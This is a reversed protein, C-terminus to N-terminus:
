PNYEFAGLDVGAGQPRAVQDFDLSPALLLTGIDIAPSTGLLHLNGTSISAFRPDKCLTHTDVLNKQQYRLLTCNASLWRVPYGSPRYFLNYDSWFGTEGGLDVRLNTSDSSLQYIINNGLTINASAPSLWVAPLKAHYITNNAITIYRSTPDEVPTSITANNGYINIGPGQVRAILNNVVRIHQSERLELAGSWGLGGLDHIYNGEILINNAGAMTKIGGGGKWSHIGTFDNRRFTQNSSGFSDIGYDGYSSFSCNEILDDHNGTTNFKIADNRFHRLVLKRFTRNGGGPVCRIGYYGGRLTLNEIVIFQNNPFFEILRGSQGIEMRYLGPNGGGKAWVYLRGSGRDFYTQGAASLSSLGSKQQLAADDQVVIPIDGDFDCGYLGETYYINNHYLTWQATDSRDLMGSLIATESQYGKLTIPTSSDSGSNAFVVPAEAEYIPYTGGRLYVTDGASAQQAAKHPTKWPAAFTGSAADDGSPAVYFETADAPAAAILILFMFSVFFRHAAQMKM